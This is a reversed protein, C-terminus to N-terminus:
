CTANRMLLSLSCGIKATCNFHADERHQSDHNAQGTQLCRPLASILIGYKLVIKTRVFVIMRSSCHTRVM